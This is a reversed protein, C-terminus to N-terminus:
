ASFTAIAAQQELVEDRERIVRVLETQQTDSISRLRGAKPANRRKRAVM